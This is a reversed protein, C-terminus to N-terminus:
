RNRMYVDIRPYDVSTGSMYLYLSSGSYLNINVADDMKPSNAVISLNYIINTTLSTGTLLIARWTGSTSDSAVVNTIVCDSYICYPNINYPTSDEYRLFINNNGNRGRVGTIHNTNVGVWKSLNTNYTLLNYDTTRIWTNGSYEVSPTNASFISTTGSITVTGGDNRQLITNRNQVTAGTVYYDTGGSPALTSLDLTYASLQDNRDFYAISGVLTAGTTYYDTGGTPALLSLDVTYASLQDIRDFFLINNSLTVATTYFDTLGTAVVIGGDNRSLSLESASKNFTAGTVYYDTGGSPALTSLDVTYASLQDIRDFFLISNNLTVGTTYYDTIGTILVNVGDNRSLTITSASKTFTGGTVYYDTGGSPALSSLDLTYASLQDNRNFYVINNFLTAATTYYDTSSIGSLNSGDGYFTNAYITTASVSSFTPSSVVNVIPLNGTGGTTINSGPQVRTIDNGNTTLFIDYLNTNGSYITTASLVGLSTAGSVTLNDITLASINISQNAITGGTYTNLGNVNVSGTLGSTIGTISNNIIDQLNTGGSLITQFSSQGSVIINDITLASINVSPNNATGGTYTNLGNSVRTIDNGDNTLFISYLDTGGSQLTGTFNSTGSATLTNITLASVNITPLDPTGGTYTNLGFQVRTSTLNSTIGTIQSNIVLSLETFGSYITGGSLTNASLGGSFVSTGSATITNITLASINVTPNNATGGTYTNLGNQVRTIDNGDATTLFIDYLNTSGSYITGASLNTTFLTDGTVTGGSLNLFERKIPYFYNGSGM